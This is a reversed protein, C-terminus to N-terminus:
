RVLIMKKTISYEETSFRYFYVGTSVSQRLDSKGDWRIKHAGASLKSDVLIAIKEGLVNFIELKVYCQEALEFEVTTEPNFPNPYNQFLSFSKPIDLNDHIGTVIGPFLLPGEFRPRFTLPYFPGPVAFAFEVEAEPLLSVFVTDRSNWSELTFYYTAWKRRGNPYPPVGEGISYGGFQFKQNLNSLGIDDAYYLYIGIEPSKLLPSVVASDLHMKDNDWSFGTSFSLLTDDCYAWIEITMPMNTGESPPNSIVLAVTDRAGRDFQNSQSYASGALVFTLIGLAFATRM